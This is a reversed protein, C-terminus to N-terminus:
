FKTVPDRQEPALALTFRAEALLKQIVSRKHDDIDLKLMAEYHAINTKIIYPDELKM